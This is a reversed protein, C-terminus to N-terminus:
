GNTKGDVTKKFDKKAVDWSYQQVTCKSWEKLFLQQWIAYQLFMMNYLDSFMNHQSFLM